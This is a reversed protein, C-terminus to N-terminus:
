SAMRRQQSAKKSITRSLFSKYPYLSKHGDSWEISIAYNGVPLMDKPEIDLPISKADLLLRGTFEEVCVACRCRCRLSVPDILQIDKRGDEISEVAIKRIVNDFRISPHPSGRARLVHVEVDVCKALDKFILSVPHEPAAVVLPLGSDGFHAASKDLPVSFTNEIGWMDSLRQRHGTGFIAHRTTDAAAVRKRLTNVLVKARKANVTQIMENSEMNTSGIDHERRKSREDNKKMRLISKEIEHNQLMCILEFDFELNRWLTEDSNLKLSPEIDFFAMNEVVAITPIDVKDFLDIGKVVDVFSLRQPTTVVVAATINMIQTLTLQVDGTGPPMDVLLFDLTGWMTLDVIQQLLQGVMPGRMAATNDSVYGFSMLKVGEFELPEILNGSFIVKESTPTVMTPLSPGYVDADLIGVKRGMLSLAFALNVATTSKGVGGKCSSVAIISKIQNMGSARQLNIHDDEVCGLNSLYAINVSIELPAWSLTQFSKRCADKLNIAYSSSRQVKITFDIAKSDIFSINVFGLTVIDTGLDPDIVNSLCSLVEIEAADISRSKM